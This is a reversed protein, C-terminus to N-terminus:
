SIHQGVQENLLEVNVDLGTKFSGVEFNEIVNSSSLRLSSLLEYANFRINEDSHNIQEQYQIMIDPNYIFFDAGDDKFLPLYQKKKGEEKNWKLGNPSDDLKVPRRIVNTFIKVDVESEPHLSYYNALERAEDAANEISTLFGYFDGFTSGEKILKDNCFLKILSESEFLWSIQTDFTHFFIKGDGATIRQAVIINEVRVPCSSYFNSM